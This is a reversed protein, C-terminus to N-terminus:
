DELGMVLNSIDVNSIDCARWIIILTTELIKDAVPPGHSLPLTLFLPELIPCKPLFFIKTELYQLPIIWM